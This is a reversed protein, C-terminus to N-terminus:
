VDDIYHLKWLDDVACSPGNNDVRGNKPLEECDTRHVCLNACVAGCGFVCCVCMHANREYLFATPKM